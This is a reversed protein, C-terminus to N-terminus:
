ANSAAANPAGLRAQAADRRQDMLDLLAEPTIGKDGRFRQAVADQARALFADQARRWTEAADLLAHLPLNKSSKM